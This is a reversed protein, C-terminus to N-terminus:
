RIIGCGIRDGADGAPQSRYDDPLRHIIVTHRRAQCPRFRGTYVASWACGNSSLLVPLDGLHNPHEQGDAAWHAGAGDFTEHTSSCSDGSHIHMAFFGDGPLGQVETVILTGCLAPYFLVRGKLCEYGPAGNVSASAEPSKCLIKSVPLM